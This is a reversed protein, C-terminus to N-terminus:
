TDDSCTRTILNFTSWKKIWDVTNTRTVKRKGNNKYAYINSKNIISCTWWSGIQKNIMDRFFETIFLKCIGKLAKSFDQTSFYKNVFCRTKAFAETHVIEGWFVLIIYKKKKKKPLTQSRVPITTQLTQSNNSALQQM